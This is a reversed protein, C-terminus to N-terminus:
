IRLALWACIIFLVFWGMLKRFITVGRVAEEYAWITLAVVSVVLAVDKGIGRPLVLAFLMGGCAVLIQRNPRQFIVIRGDRDGCLRQLLSRQNKTDRRENAM